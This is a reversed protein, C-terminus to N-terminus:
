APMAWIPAPATGPCPAGVGVGAALLRPPPAVPWVDGGACGLVGAGVWVTRGVRLGVGVGVGGLWVGVGDGVGDFVQLIGFGNSGPCHM